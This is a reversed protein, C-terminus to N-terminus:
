ATCLSKRISYTCLTLEYVAFLSCNYSDKVNDDSLVRADIYLVDLGNTCYRICLREKEMWFRQIRKTYNSLLRSLPPPARGGGKHTIIDNNLIVQRDSVCVCMCLADQPRWTLTARPTILAGSM